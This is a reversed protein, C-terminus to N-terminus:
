NPVKLFGRRYRAGNQFATTALNLVSNVRPSFTLLGHSSLMLSTMHARNGSWFETISSTLLKKKLLFLIVRVSAGNGETANYWVQTMGVLAEITSSGPVTGFQRPDVKAPVAPKVYRDVVFDEALKSLVPTLSIPRLHKNVDYVPTQKPISAVNAHKWSQPLRVELYSCNLIDTVVPALLDANEKLLWAPVGDPGSSKAPNLAILKKLVCFETVIPTDTHQVVVM